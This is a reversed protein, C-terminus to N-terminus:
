FAGAMRRLALEARLAGYRTGIARSRTDELLRQAERLEYATGVGALYRERV